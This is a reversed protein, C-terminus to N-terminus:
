ETQRRAESFCRTVLDAAPARAMDAGAHAARFAARGREICAERLAAARDGRTGAETDRTVLWWAGGAILLLALCGVIFSRQEVAQM